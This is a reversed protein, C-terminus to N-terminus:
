IIEPIRFVAAIPLRPPGIRIKAFDAKKFAEVIENQNVLVGMHCPNRKWYMVILDGQKADPIQELEQQDNTDIEQFFRRMIACMRVGDPTRHYAAFEAELDDPLRGQRSFAWRPLGICDVGTEPNRGQHVWPIERPVLSLVDDIFRQTDFRM